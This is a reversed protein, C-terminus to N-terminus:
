LTIRKPSLLPFTWFAVQRTYGNAYTKDASAETLRTLSQPDIPNKKDIPNCPASTKGQRCIRNRMEFGFKGLGSLRVWLANDIHFVGLTFGLNEREISRAPAVVPAVVPAVPGHATPTKAAQM